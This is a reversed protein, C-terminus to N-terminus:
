PAPKEWVSVHKRSDSTFPERNWGSWRDRLTMGALQAMLDLEAPWTYRFPISAQEVRGDVVEFHHSVLGQTAIDYEDIGWRTEGVHFVRASEGPPVRQLQPVGVEILFCGGPELQTAVNRFCAVQAEQTTLNAITNYVLYALSFTGDVITTAFDGITVGIDDGGPKARLRAVMARSMDIGHVPVGRQALPLAVRGTGIGLELARGGGALEALLDVVPEIPGAGSTEDSEDYRAAASEDFYGDDSVPRFRGAGFRTM